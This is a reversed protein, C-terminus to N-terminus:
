REKRLGTDVAEEEEEAEEKVEPDTV